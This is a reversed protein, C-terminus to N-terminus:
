PQCAASAPNAPMQQVLVMGLRGGQPAEVGASPLLGSTMAIGRAVPGMTRSMAM